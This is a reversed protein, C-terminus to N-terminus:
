PTSASPSNPPSRPTSLGRALLRLTQAKRATLQQLMRSPPRAPSAPGARRATFEGILRRTVSPALLAEGTAVTRVGTVEVDGTEGEIVLTRVQETVRYGVDRRHDEALCGVLAAGTLATVATYLLVKAPPRNM